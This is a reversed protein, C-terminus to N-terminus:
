AKRLLRFGALVWIVLLMASWVGNWSAMSLTLFEWAVQDCLVLDSTRDASSPLLDDISMNTIDLANGTCSSPGEWWGREVGTHFLAIAATTGASLAGIVAAAFLPLGVLVFAGVGIAVVHPYRQWICMACPAYGLAQFVFAAGLLLASGAAAFLVLNKPNQLMNM